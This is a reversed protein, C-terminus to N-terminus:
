FLHNRYPFHSFSLLLSFIIFTSVVMLLLEASRFSHAYCGLWSPYALLLYLPFSHVPYSLISYPLVPYLLFPILWLLYTLFWNFSYSLFPCSLLHFSFSLFPFPIFFTLLSFFFLLFFNFLLFFSSRYRIQFRFTHCMLILLTFFLLFFYLTYYFISPLRYPQSITMSVQQRITEQRRSSTSDERQLPSNYWQLLVGEDFVDRDYMLHLFTQFAPSM